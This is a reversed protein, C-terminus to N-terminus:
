WVGSIRGDRSRWYQLLLYTGSFVAKACPQVLSYDEKNSLCKLSLAFSGVSGVEKKLHSRYSSQGPIALSRSIEVRGTSPNYTCAIVSTSKFTRM